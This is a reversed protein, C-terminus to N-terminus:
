GYSHTRKTYKLSGHRNLALTYKTHIVPKVNMELGSKM